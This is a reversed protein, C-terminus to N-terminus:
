FKLQSLIGMHSDKVSFQRSVLCGSKMYCLGEHRGVFQDHDAHTILLKMNNSVYTYYIDLFWTVYM